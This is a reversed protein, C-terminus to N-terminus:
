RAAITRVQAAGGSPTSARGPPLAAYIDGGLDAPMKAGDQLVILTRAKGKAACFYGAEYVVNDRTCPGPRPMGAVLPDDATVLFIGARLARGRRRSRSCSAARPDFDTAWDLVRYSWAAACTPRSCRRCGRLPAATACSCTAGLTSSKRGPSSPCASPTPRSGPPSSSQEAHARHLGAVVRDFVVRSAGRRGARLVAAAPAAYQAIAARTTTSSPPCRSMSSAVDAPM